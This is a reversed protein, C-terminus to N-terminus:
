LWVQWWKKELRRQAELETYRKINENVNDTPAYEYQARQAQVLKKIRQGITLELVVLTLLTAGLYLEGATRTLGLRQSINPATLGVLGMLGTSARYFLIRANETM